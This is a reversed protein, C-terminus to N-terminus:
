HYATTPHPYAPAVQIAETQARDHTAGKNGQCSARITMVRHFEVM